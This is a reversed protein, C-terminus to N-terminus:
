RGSPELDSSMMIPTTPAVSGGTPEMTLAVAHAAAPVGDDMAMARGGSPTFTPGPVPQHDVMYWLQIVQGDPMAPMGDLIVAIEARAASFVVRGREDPPLNAGALTVTTADPAALLASVAQAHDRDNTVDALRVGLVAVLTAAAVGLVATSWRHRRAVVVPGAVHDQATTAVKSLVAARLSAPPSQASDEALGLAVSRFEAVDTRCAECRQLHAEFDAREVDDVANLAYAAALAHIDDPMPRNM